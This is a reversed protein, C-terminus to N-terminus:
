IEKIAKGSSRKKFSRKYFYDVYGGTAILAYYFIIFAFVGVPVFVFVYPFV